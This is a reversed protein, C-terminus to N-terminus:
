ILPQHHRLREQPPIPTLRHRASWEENEKLVFDVFRYMRELRKQLHRSSPGAKIAPGLPFV